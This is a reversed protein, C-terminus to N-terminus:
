AARAEMDPQVRLVTCRGALTARVREAYKDGTGKDDGRHTRVIVRAGDPIRAALDENWSGSIIALVAPAERRGGRQAWSLFDPLGEAVIVRRVRAGDRLEGWEDGADGRLMHIALADAMALGRIRFRVLAGDTRRVPAPSVSKPQAPRIARAHLSELRGIASWMPVVLRYLTRSWISGKCSAWAPLPIGSPVARALDLDAIRKGDLRRSNLWAVVEADETVPRAKAWVAHVENEPPRTMDALWSPPSVRPGPRAPADATRALLLGAREVLERVPRWDAPPASGTAVFAAFAVADGRAGCRHCAWGQGDSRLGIPGRPDPTSYGRRDAGCKPCPAISGREVRFGLSQAVPAVGGLAKLDDMWSSATMTRGPNPGITQPGVMPGSVLVRTFAPRCARSARDADDVGEPIAGETSVM